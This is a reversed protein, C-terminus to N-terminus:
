CPGPRQTDPDSPTQPVPRFCEYFAYHWKMTSLHKQKCGMPMHSEEWKRQFGPFRMTVDPHPDHSKDQFRVDTPSYVYFTNELHFIIGCHM